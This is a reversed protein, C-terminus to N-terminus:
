PKPHAPGLVRRKVELVQKFLPEAQENRGRVSYLRALDHMTTLTDPHEPGLVRRRAELVQSYLPEADDPRNLLRYLGALGNM